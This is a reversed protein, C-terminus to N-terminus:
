NFVAVTDTDEELSAALVDDEITAGGGMLSFGAPKLLTKSSFGSVLGM